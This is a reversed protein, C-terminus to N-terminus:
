RNDIKGTVKKSGKIMEEVRKCANNVRLLRAVKSMKQLVTDVKNFPVPKTARGQKQGYTDRLKKIELEIEEDRTRKAREEQSGETEPATQGRTERPGADGATVM